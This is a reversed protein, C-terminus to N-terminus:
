LNKIRELVDASTHGDWEPAKELIQACDFLNWASEPYHFTIMKGPIFSYGVIFFGPFMSGDSHLRSKWIPNIFPGFENNRSLEYAKFFLQKFLANTLACRFEYLEGFTHFGDSIDDTDIQGLKDSHSITLNLRITGEKM